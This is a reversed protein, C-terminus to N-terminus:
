LITALFQPFSRAVWCCCLMVTDLGWFLFPGIRIAGDDVGKCTQKDGGTKADGSGEHLQFRHKESRIKQAKSHTQM